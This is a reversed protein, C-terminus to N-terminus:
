PTKSGIHPSSFAINPAVVRHTSNTLFGHGPLQYVYGVITLGLGGDKPRHLTVRLTEVECTERSGDPGPEDGNGSQSEDEDALLPSFPRSVGSGAPHAPLQDPFSTASLRTVKSPVVNESKASNESEHNTDSTEVRVLHPSTPQCSSSVRSARDESSEDVSIQPLAVQKVEWEVSTAFAVSDEPNLATGQSQLSQLNVVPLPSHILAELYDDLQETPVISHSM